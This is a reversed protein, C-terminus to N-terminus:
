QAPSALLQADVFAHPTSLSVAANLPTFAAGSSHLGFSPTAAPLGLTVPATGSGAAAAAGSFDFRRSRASSSKKGSSGRGSQVTSSASGKSGDQPTRLMAAQANSATLLPGALMNSSSSSSSSIPPGAISAASTASGSRMMAPSFGLVVSSGPSEAYGFLPAASVGAPSRNSRSSRPPLAAGAPSFLPGTMQARPLQNRSSRATQPSTHPMAPSPPSSSSSVSAAAASSGEPSAAVRGSRRASPSADSAMPSGGPQALAETAAARRSPSDLESFLPVSPMSSTGKSRTGHPSAASIGAGGTSPAADAARPPTQSGSQTKGDTMMSRPTRRPSQRGHAPSQLYALFNTFSANAPSAMLEGGIGNGAGAGAASISRQSMAGPSQHAVMASNRPTDRGIKLQLGRMPSSAGNETPGFDLRTGMAVPTNLLTLAADTEDRQRDANFNFHRSRSGSSGAVAATPSGRTSSAPASADVGGNRARSRTSHPTHAGANLQALSPTFAAGAGATANNLSHLPSFFMHPSPATFSTTSDGQLALSPAPGHRSPSVLNPIDLMASDAADDLDEEEEESEDEEEDESSAEQQKEDAQEAKVKSASPAAAKKGKAKSQKAKGEHKVSPAPEDESQEDETEEGRHARKARAAAAAARRPRKSASGEMYDGDSSPEVEAADEDVQVSVRRRKSSSGRSAGAVSAAKKSASGKSPTKKDSAPKRKTGSSAKKASGEKPPAQKRKGIPPPDLGAAIAAERAAQQAANYQTKNPTLTLTNVIDPNGELVQICYYYLVESSGHEDLEPAATAAAVGGGVAAAAAAAGDSGSPMMGPMMGPFIGTKKKQPLKQPTVQGLTKQAHQRAVRRMTSNHTIVGDALTFRHAAHEVEISVYEGKEPNKKVDRVIAYPRSTSSATWQVGHARAIVETTQDWGLCPHAAFLVCVEFTPADERVQFTVRLSGDGQMKASVVGQVDDVTDLWRNRAASGFVIIVEPQVVLSARITVACLDDVDVSYTQAQGTRSLLTHMKTIMIRALEAQTVKLRAWSTALERMTLAVKGGADFMSEETLSNHLVYVTRVDVNRRGMVDGLSPFTVVGDQSSEVICSGALARALPVAKAFAAAHQKSLVGAKGQMAKAGLIEARRRNAETWGRQAIWSPTPAIDYGNEWIHRVVTEMGLQVAGAIGAWTKRKAVGVNRAAYLALIKESAAASIATVSPGAYRVVTHGFSELTAATPQVRIGYRHYVGANVEAESLAADLQADIQGGAPASATSSSSAAVATADQGADEDSDGVMDDDVADDEGEGEGECASEDVEDDDMFTANVASSGTASPSCSLGAEAQVETLRLAAVRRAGSAATATVDQARWAHQTSILRPLVFKNPSVALVTAVKDAAVDVFDGIRMPNVKGARRQDELWSLVYSKAGELTLKHPILPASSRADASELAFLVRRMANGPKYLRLIITPLSGVRGNLTPEATVVGKIWVGSSIQDRAYLCAAEIADKTTCYTARRLPPFEQGPEVFRFRKQMYKLTLEDLWCLSVHRTQARACSSDKATPNAAGRLTVLHDATVTHAGGDYSITYMTQTRDSKERASSHDARTVPTATGDEAVLLVEIGARSKDAVEAATISGGRPLLLLSSPSVCNWRNKIANDTRGPLLKAIESWRSGLKKHGEIIAADESALWTEKKVGDQLHNHWRERCQKGTRGALFTGVVSWRVCCVCLFVTSGSGHTSRLLLKCQATLHLV